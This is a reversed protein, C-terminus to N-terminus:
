IFRTLNKDTIIGLFNSPSVYFDGYLQNRETVINTCPIDEGPKPPNCFKTNIILHLTSIGPMNAIQSLECDCLQM